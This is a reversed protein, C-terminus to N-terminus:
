GFESHAASLSRVVSESLRGSNGSSKAGTLQGPLSPRSMRNRQPLPPTQGLHCSIIRKTPTAAEDQGSSRACQGWVVNHPESLLHMSARLNVAGHINVSVVGRRTSFRQIQDVGEGLWHPSTQYEPHVRGTPGREHWTFQVKGAIPLTFTVHGSPRFYVAKM